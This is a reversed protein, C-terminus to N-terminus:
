LYENSKSAIFSFKGDYHEEMDEACEWKDIGDALVLMYDAYKGDAKVFQDLDSTVMRIINGYNSLTQFIGTIEYLNKEGNVMLEITEGIWIQDM